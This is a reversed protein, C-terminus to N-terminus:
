LKSLYEIPVTPSDDDVWVKLPIGTAKSLRILDGISPIRERKEYKSLLSNDIDVKLAFQVRNMKLNQRVQLIKAGTYQFFENNSIIDLKGAMM